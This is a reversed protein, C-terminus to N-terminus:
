CPPRGCARRLLEVQAAAITDWGFALAHARVAARDPPAALLARVADIIADVTRAAAIRGAASRTVIEPVGGVNTAVVPTGCAMAELLVNPWGERSSALVLADAAGYAFRLRAQPMNAVFRMRAGIGLAMARAVLQARQAGEGV